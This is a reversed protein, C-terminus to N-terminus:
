AKESHLFRVEIVIGLSMIEMPSLTKWFQIPNLDTGIGLPTVEIPWYAKLPQLPKAETVIGLLTM